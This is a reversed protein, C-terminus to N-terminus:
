GGRKFPQLAGKALSRWLWELPGYHFRDMWPKSWALMILWVLPVVCYAQWLSLKAFLGFGYGYFLTTMLVSTGLYNTFACKGAAEVRKIFASNAFRKIILMIAAAHGLAVLVRFPVTWALTSGIVWAADFGSYWMWGYILILPPIGWLYMRRLFSAYRSPEWAGTLFGNRLLIMGIAMLGITELGYMIFAMIPAFGNEVLRDKVLGAYTGTHLAIEKTNEAATPQVAEQLSQYSSKLDASTGPQTAVSSFASMALSLAAMIGFSLGLTWKVSTRLAADDKHLLSAAVIGCAGYLALIDGFWIFFYHILGFGILWIMRRFHVSGGNGASAQAREYVLLMSAGFLVSFLARMKGDVLVAMVAWSIMDVQGPSGYAVPNMYNASPMAFSVVNMLLIGMVAFGRVSDLSAFRASM